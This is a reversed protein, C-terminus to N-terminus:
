RKAETAAADAAVPPALDLKAARDLIQPSIKRAADIDSRGQAVRGTKLEVLGRGYLSWATTPALALAADYDAVARDFEGRRLRVLGRSDLPNAQHPSMRVAANCDALAKDLDRNALARAWCRGNLANALQGDEPHAGIWADFQGIAPDFLDASMYLGALELRIQAQKASAQVAADLDARAGPLDRTTVRLAARGALADVDDPKLKLAADFDALAQVPQGLALKVQARQALYRPEAPALACARDLDALARDYDHRAAFAAGRRSFSGADTPADRGEGTSASATAAAPSQSLNFVPGGNYSFYLKHQENAVYVRHSLFFDAGILMDASDGIDGIRLQSNKIEEDGLQFSAVPALWTQVPRLGVGGSYGAPKVGPGDTRIGGLRAGRLSLVSAEAGTDFMVRIRKGNLMATGITHPHLEDGWDIPIMSHPNGKDWYAMDAHDCGKPKFLRIAGNSLDYEVDALRLVNQGLLGIASTSVESGGVVFDVGHIDVKALGFTKVTTVYADVTGGVGSLRFGHLLATSLHLREANAPSITSFFAGSDAVFMVEAGNIKSPVLPQMGVMTVPLEAIEGLTCAARAPQSILLVGCVLGLLGLRIMM